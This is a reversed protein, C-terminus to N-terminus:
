KKQAFLVFPCCCIYDKDPEIKL